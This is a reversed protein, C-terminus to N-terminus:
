WKRSLEIEWMTRKEDDGSDSLFTMTVKGATSSDDSLPKWNFFNLRPLESAQQLQIANYM